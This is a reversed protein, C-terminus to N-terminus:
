GPSGKGSLYFWEPNKRFCSVTLPLPIQQAMRLDAGRELCIVMGAGWRETKVPRIGKRGGLWCHWLVSPLKYNGYLEKCLSNRPPLSSPLTHIELTSHQHWLNWKDKDPRCFTNAVGLQQKIIVDGVEFYACSARWCKRDWYQQLM